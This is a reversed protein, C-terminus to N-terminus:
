GKRRRLRYDNIADAIEYGLRLGESCDMRMHVGLPIRSFANEEAFEEVTAFTRAAGRFETRGEHSRDTFNVENGLFDIFVGGAASAFCSHGSPYSPFTPNPWPILRYLNTQFDPDIFEHIYVNPRMVMFQYKYKWASVAADNLAFGLKLNLYLAEELNLDFQDILQRAISVQRAPPSFTLGEVDDSWFEAIWLDEGDATRADKNSEYVEQMQQYYESSPDESYTIPPIATTEAPSIVFTRVKEWYPFLAREPEASFTWYGQGSPPTYSHPQPDQVQAEAEADTQSYAIVAQAVSNGWHSSAELDQPSTQASFQAHLKIELEDIRNELAPDINLLFHRTSAAYSANLAIEWNIGQGSAPRRFNLGRLREQNSQFDPMAPLGTEYAALHIYAIARASANPRMGAAYREIELFLDMWALTIESETEVLRNASRQDRGDQNDNRLEETSSDSLDFPEDKTCSQFMLILFAFCALLRIQHYQM